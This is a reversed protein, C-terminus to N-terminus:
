PSPAGGDATPPEGYGSAEPQQEIANLYNYITIRSVGMLTAVDDVSRRLLFAGRENLLRVAAQKLERDLEDLHGGLEREVSAVLRDLAGQLDQVRVGGVVEGEWELPIDSPRMQGPGVLTAGIAEAVPRLSRLLPHARPTM